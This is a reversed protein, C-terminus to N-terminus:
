DGETPMVNLMFRTSHEEYETNMVIPKARSITATKFHKDIERKWSHLQHRRQVDCQSCSTPETSILM